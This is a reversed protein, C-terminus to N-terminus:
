VSQDVDEMTNTASDPVDYYKNEFEDEVITFYGAKLYAKVGNKGNMEWNYPRIVLDVNSLEAWDLTKVDEEELVTKGHSSVLVVKPPRNGFNVAVQLYAQDEDEEDRPKLWRVNWGDEELQKILDKDDLFVCFNRRGSPNFKGEEGRFNRFGIRANEIVLNNNAM